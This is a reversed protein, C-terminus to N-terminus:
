RCVVGAVKLMAALAEYNMEGVKGGGNETPPFVSSFLTLGQKLTQQEPTLFPLLHQLVVPNTLQNVLGATEEAPRTTQQQHSQKLARPGHAKYEAWELKLREPVAITKPEEEEQKEQGNEEGAPERASDPIESDEFYMEVLVGEERKKQVESEPSEALQSGGRKQMNRSVQGAGFRECKSFDIAAPAYWELVENEEAEHPEHEGASGGMGDDDASFQRHGMRFGEDKDLERANKRDKRSPRESVDSEFYRVAVLDADTKWSVSKKRKPKSSTAPKSDTPKDAEPDSSKNLMSSVLSMVRPAPKAPESPKSVAPKRLGQFFASNGAPTSTTPTSSTTATAPATSASSSTATAPSASSTSTTASPATAAASTSPPPHVTTAPTATGSAADSAKPRKKISISSLASRNLQSSAASSKASPAPSDEKDSASAKSLLKKASESVAGDAKKSVLVLPKTLKVTDLDDMKPSMRTLIGVLLGVKAFDNAKYDFVLWNRLRALFKLNSALMRWIDKNVSTLLSSLYTIYTERLDFKSTKGYAEDPIALGIEILRDVLAPKDDLLNKFATAIRIRLATVPDKESMIPLEVPPPTPAPSETAKKTAAKKKPAATPEPAARKKKPAASAPPLQQQVSPQPQQQLHQQIQDPTVSPSQTPAPGQNIQWSSQLSAFSPPAPPGGLGGFLAANSFIQQYQQQAQADYNSNMM